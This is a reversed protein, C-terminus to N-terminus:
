FFFLSPAHGVFPMTFPYIGSRLFGVSALFSKLARWKLSARDQVPFMSFYGTRGMHNVRQQKECKVHMELLLQNWIQKYGEWFSVIMITQSQSIFPLKGYGRKGFVGWVCVCRQESGSISLDAARVLAAM